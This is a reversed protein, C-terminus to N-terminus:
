WYMVITNKHIKPFTEFWWGTVPHDGDMLGSTTHKRSSKLHVLMLGFHMWFANLVLWFGAFGVGLLCPM